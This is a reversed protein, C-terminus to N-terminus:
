EEGVPRQIKMTFYKNTLKILWNTGEPRGHAPREHVILATWKCLNRIQLWVHLAQHHCAAWNRELRNYKSVKYKVKVRLQLSLPRVPPMCVHMLGSAALWILMSAVTLASVMVKLHVLLPNFKPLNTKAEVRFVEHHSQEVTIIEDHQSGHYSSDDCPCFTWGDDINTPVFFGFTRKGSPHTFLCFMWLSASVKWWSRRAAPTGSTYFGAHWDSNHKSKGTNVLVKEIGWKVTTWQVVPQLPHRRKGGRGAGWWKWRPLDCNSISVALPRLEHILICCARPLPLGFDKLREYHIKKM